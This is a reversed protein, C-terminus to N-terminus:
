KFMPNGKNDLVVIKAVKINTLEGLDNYPNELPTITVIGGEILEITSQCEKLQNSKNNSQMGISLVLLVALALPIMEKVFMPTEKHSTTQSDALESGIIGNNTFDVLKKINNTIM